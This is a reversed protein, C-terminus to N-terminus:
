VRDELASDEPLFRSSEDYRLPAAFYRSARESYFQRLTYCTNRGTGGDLLVKGGEGPLGSGLPTRAYAKERKKLPLFSVPMERFQEGPSMVPLEAIEGAKSKCSGQAVALYPQFV